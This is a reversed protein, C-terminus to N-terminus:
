KAIQAQHDMLGTRGCTDTTTSLLIALTLNIGVKQFRSNWICWLGNGLMVVGWERKDCGSGM